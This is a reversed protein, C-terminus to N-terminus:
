RSVWERAIAQAKTLTTAWKPRIGATQPHDDGERRTVHWRREGVWLVTATRQCDDAQYEIRTIM